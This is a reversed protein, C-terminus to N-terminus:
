KTGISGHASDRIGDRSQGENRQVPNQRSKPKNGVKEGGVEGEEVRVLDLLEPGESWSRPKGSRSTM